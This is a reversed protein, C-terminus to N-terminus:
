KALTWVTLGELNKGRQRRFLSIGYAVIVFLLNVLVGVWYAHIGPNWAEPVWGALAFGLYINVLTAIALGVLVSFNDARVTFFGLMFLGVLCGGFVSAFIWSLDNMSEKPLSEFLIAGLVMIAGAAIAVWRATKLYFADSRNKALYPKLLDVVIITAIGNLSSDLSSMAAAVAGAIVLGAVGAPLQTLIFYPFIQDAELGAVAADPLVKYFVWVCTGLFFFFAWTPVAVATYIITAKRAERTSKSAAYRQVFNQDTYHALWSFIGLLAITWFTREGLDWDFSGINFKDAEAAVSIVQGFGDPLRYIVAFFCFLGGLWLVISQVVDTWIVAQIGGAVTYFGIFVGLAAIVPVIPAGTLIHVPIAVLFLIKSIRIIQLLLFSLTGYLRVVPGYREGLYEFASTLGGRRFFPIFVLVAVVAVFPLMLNAVLQRWDLIYAAAPFALFTVASISTGLMSLGVAWGPFSRKGLFYAETSTNRKAFYVGFAAMGALYAILVIGDLIRFEAIM